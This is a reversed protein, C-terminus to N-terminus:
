MMFRVDLDVRPVSEAATRPAASRAGCEQPPFPM